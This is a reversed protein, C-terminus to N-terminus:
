LLEYEISLEYQQLSHTTAIQAFKHVMIKLGCYDIEHTDGEIYDNINPTIKNPKLADYRSKLNICAINLCDAYQKKNGPCSFGEVLNM